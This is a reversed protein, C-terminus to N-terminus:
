KEYARLLDLLRAAHKGEDEAIEFFLNAADENDKIEGAYVKFDRALEMSEVWARLLKDRTTITISYKNLM